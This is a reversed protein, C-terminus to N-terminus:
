PLLINLPKFFNSLVDDKWFSVLYIYKYSMQSQFPRRRTDQRQDSEWSASKKNDDYSPLTNNRRGFDTINKALVNHFTIMIWYKNYSVTNLYAKMITCYIRDVKNVTRHRYLHITCATHIVEIFNITITFCLIVLKKVALKKMFVVWMSELATVRSKKLKFNLFINLFSCLDTTYSVGSICRWFTVPVVSAVEFVEQSTLM